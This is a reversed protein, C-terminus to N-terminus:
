TVKAGFAICFSYNHGHALKLIHPSSSTWPRVWLAAFCQFDSTCTLLWFGTLTLDGSVFELFFIIFLVAIYLLMHWHLSQSLAVCFPWSLKLVRRFWVWTALSGTVQRLWQTMLKYQDRSSFSYIARTMRPNSSNFILSLCSIGSNKVVFGKGVYTIANSM